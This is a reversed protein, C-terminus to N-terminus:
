GDRAADIVEARRARGRRERVPALARSRRRTASTSPSGPSTTTGPPAARRDGRRWRGRPDGARAADIGEQGATSTSSCPRRAPAAPASSTASCPARRSRPRAPGPRRGARAAGRAAGGRDAAGDAVAVGDLDRRRDRRRAPAPQRPRAPVPQPQGAALRAAPAADVRRPQAVRRPDDPAVDLSAAEAHVAEELRAAAKGTPAALAVLPMAGAQEALLAVIRAVTTTKGTGPGGAVVAFRRRVATAAARRQGCRGAAGPVPPRLGAALRPRTSRSRRRRARAPRRRGPAGRALLPRPVPRLRRAAAPPERRTRRASPSWRARRSAGRGVRWARAVAAGVPRRARRRRGDATEGITALDVYVHGLRPARVALAAALAVAEDAEGALEALRAAVHVDAAALVGIDNFERLLGPAALARRVDLADGIM